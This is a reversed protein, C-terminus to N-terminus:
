IGGNQEEWLIIEELAVILDPDGMKRVDVRLKKFDINDLASYDSDRIRNLWEKATESLEM